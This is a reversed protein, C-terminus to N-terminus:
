TKFTRNFCEVVSAKTKNSTSFHQIEYRDLLQKIHKNYFETGTDTQLKTPIHGESLMNNFAKTVNIGSKNKLCRVWVYKSFVDICMLLFKVGDNEDSYEIMDVLDIQFQKDVGSVLVRNRPFHRAAKVHLTYVDQGLLFHKM